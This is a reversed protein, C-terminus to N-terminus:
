SDMSSPVHIKGQGKCICFLDLRCDGIIKLLTADFPDINFM